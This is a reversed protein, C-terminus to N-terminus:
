AARNIPPNNLVIDVTGALGSQWLAQIDMRMHRGTPDTGSVLAAAPITFTGARQVNTTETNPGVVVQDTGGIERCTIRWQMTNSNAYATLNWDVLAGVSWFECVHLTQFSTQATGPRFGTGPTGSLVAATGTTTPILQLPAVQGHEASVKFVIRGNIDNVQFGHTGDPLTGAYVLPTGTAPDKSQLTVGVLSGGELESVRRDMEKMWDGFNAQDDLPNPSYRDTNDAV